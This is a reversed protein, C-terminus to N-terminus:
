FAQLFSKAAQYLESSSAGAKAEGKESTNLSINEEKIIRLDQIEFGSDMLNEKIAEQKTQMFEAAKDSSCLIYGDLKGGHLRFQASIKGMEATEFSARVKGAEDENHIITLRISSMKGDLEVPIEYSEEKSLSGALSLQKHMLTIEKIDLYAGEMAAAEDLIEQSTEVLHGYNEAARDANDFNEILQKSAKKLEEKGKGTQRAKDSVQEFLAPGKRNLLVNAALLNDITVPQKYDLLEKLTGDDAFKLHRIDKIQEKQYAEETKKDTEANKLAQAFQELTVSEDPMMEKLSEPTLNRYIEDLLQNYYQSESESYGQMIQESITKRSNNVQSIAGYNDDVRVDTGTKKSSRVSSLLNKFNIEAGQELLSGIVAGDSKEVQRILRYIGIFAEKEEQTIQNDKELKYLFKSYKETDKQLNDDQKSLYEEMEPISMSLPNKGERIMQLTASPTMKQIVNQLTQDAAKVQQINEETLPTSNYALIRVARRNQESTEMDMDQLIDDVNRFAKHISDGMDKRPATMLTEYSKEAKVYERELRGGEEYVANITTQQLSDAIRGVVAAPMGPLASIKQMTETYLDAKRGAAEVDGGGFLRSNLQEEAEKLKNVLEELPATDISYGSKLLLLNAQVTMKLRVEEMQRKATIDEGEYSDTNQFKQYIDVAQELLTANQTIDASGPAKGDAIARVAADAVEEKALPFAIGQIKHYLKLTEATLPIGNEIMKKAQELIQPEQSLGADEAIKQIQPELQEWDINDAKKAYYGSMEEQYYGRGQRSGNSSSSFRATYLNDVTPDMRNNVLYKEADDSLGDIESAEDVTKKVEAANEATFPAQYQAFSRRISQALGSDGVIEELVESDIDDTYGAVEVGALAMNAKIEDVITVVTEIETSGPNFGEEQLKAFDEDSMSNSMVAMYNKQWVVDQRKAEQMVDETTKGQGGYAKNDMVTGSIDLAYGSNIRSGQTDKVATRKATTNNDVTQQTNYNEFTIKM